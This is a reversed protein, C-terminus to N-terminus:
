QRNWEPGPDDGTRHEAEERDEQRREARGHARAAVQHNLVQGQALLEGRQGRSSTRDDPGGVPDEPDQQSVEPATPGGAETAGPLIAGSLAEDGGDPPLQEVVDDDEVLVMEAPQEAGFYIL